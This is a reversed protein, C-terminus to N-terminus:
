LCVASYYGSINDLRDKRDASWRVVLRSNCPVGGWEYELDRTECRNGGSHIVGNVSRCHTIEEIKFGQAGLAELMAREDSGQPFDRRLVATFKTSAPEPMMWDSDNSIVGSAAIPPPHHNAMIAVYVLGLRGRADNSGFFYVVAVYAACVVLLAMLIFAVRKLWRWTATV